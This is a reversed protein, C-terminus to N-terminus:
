GVAARVAQAFAITIAAVPIAAVPIASPLRLAPTQKPAPSPQRPRSGLPRRCHEGPSRPPGHHPLVLEDLANEAVIGLRILGEEVPGVDIGHLRVAVLPAGRAIGVEGMGEFDGGDEGIQLEVVGGDDRRKQVIDDLVRRNGARLDILQEPGLDALEDVPQGLDAAEVEDGLLRLLGLVEALEEDGDGAVDAHQEDLEGVPQVVHARQLVHLGIRALADRLLRDVDIRREGPAHAHLRHTLLQLVVGEAPEMGLGIRRHRRLEGLEPFRVFPQDLLNAGREGGLDGLDFDVGFDGAALLLGIGDPALHGVLLDAQLLEGVDVGEADDDVRDVVAVAHEAHRVGGPSRYRSAELVVDGRGLLVVVLRDVGGDDTRTMLADLQLNARTGHVVDGLVAHGCM